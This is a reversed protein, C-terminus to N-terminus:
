QAADALKQQRMTEALLRVGSEIRIPDLAGYGLLLIDDAGRYLRVGREAAASLIAAGDKRGEPLLWSVHSGSGTGWLKVEGFHSQLAAILVDRRDLMTKRVMRLHRDYDGSAIFDTLVRQDLWTTGDDLGAKLRRAAEMQAPPLVLYALRLGAGLTESFGRLYLVAGRQDLSFLAPPASGAYRYDGDSDDEIIVSGHREAWDLLQERRELPLLGGLPRQRSPTVHLIDIREAPLRGTDLGHEDVPCDRRRAGLADFLDIARRDGPSETLLSRGSIGTLKAAVTLAQQMGSLVIIQDPDAVIGRHFALWEAIVARLAASGRGHASHELPAPHRAQRDLVTQAIRLWSKCPFLRDDASLAFDIAPPPPTPRPPPEAHRPAPAVDPPARSVFTGIAPRTELYGEAILKEYALLVTTRSISLQQGLFRTAIIRSDPKLRGSMILGRLQEFLQNQLPEGCTRDLHIPLHM